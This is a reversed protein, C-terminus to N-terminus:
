GGWPMEAYREFAEDHMRKFLREHGSEWRALFELIIKAEGEAKAAAQHYFEAFDREILYAMRLVPLDAVMAENVTQEIMEKDARDAFFDTEGLKPTPYKGPEKADLANIQAQIFEIHRQEEAAIVKFAEQAAANSLRKANNEFFAKGEYERQLAYELIKRINM